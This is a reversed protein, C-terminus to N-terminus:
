GEITCKLSGASFNLGTNTSLLQIRWLVAGAGLNSSGEWFTMGGSSVQSGVGHWLNDDIRNLEFHGTQGVSGGYITDFSDSVSTLSSVTTSSNKQWGISNYGSTLISASTGTRLLIRNGSGITADVWSLKVRKTWTPFSNFEMTNNGSMSMTSYELITNQFAQAFVTGSKFNVNGLVDFNGQPIASNIGVRGDPLIRVRPIGSADYMIFDTATTTSIVRDFRATNIFPNFTFGANDIQLVKYSDGATIDSMFPVNYWVNDDISEQIYLPGSFGTSTVIGVELDGGSLMTTSTITLSTGVKITGETADMIIPISGTVTMIGSLSMDGGIIAM